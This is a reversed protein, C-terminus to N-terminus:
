KQEKKQQQGSKNQPPKQHPNVNKKMRVAVNDVKVGLQKGIDEWSKGARRMAVVDDTTISPIKSDRAFGHIMAVEGYGLGWRARESQLSDPSAHLQQSLRAIVVQEGEPTSAEQNISAVYRQIRQLSTEKNGQNPAPTASPVPTGYATAPPVPTQALSRSPSVSPAVLIFALAFLLARPRSM